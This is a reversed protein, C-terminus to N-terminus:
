PEDPFRAKIQRRKFEELQERTFVFDKKNEVVSECGAWDQLNPLSVVSDSLLKEQLTYDTTRPGRWSDPEYVEFEELYEIQSACFYSDPLNEFLCNDVNSTHNWWDHHSCLSSTAYKGNLRAMEDWDESLLAEIQKDLHTSYEELTLM